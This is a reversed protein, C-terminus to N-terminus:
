APPAPKETGTHTLTPPAQEPVFIWMLVYVLVGAGGAFAVLVFALRWLWAELGTSEELGACVGALWRDERSRRLSNAAEIWPAAASPLPDGQLRAKARAAEAATLVGRRQLDDLRALDDHVSMAAEEPPEPPPRSVAAPAGDLM